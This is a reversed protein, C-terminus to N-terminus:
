SSSIYRSHEKRIERQEQHKQKAYIVLICLASSVFVLIVPLFVTPLSFPSVSLCVNSQYIHSMSLLCVSLWALCFSPLGAVLCFPLSLSRLCAVSCASLRASLWDTQCAPPNEFSCDLMCFFLCYVPPWVSWFVPPPPPLPPSTSLHASPCDLYFASIETSNTISFIVIKNQFLKQSITCPGGITIISLM